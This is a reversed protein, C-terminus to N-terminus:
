FRKLGFVLGMTSAFIVIALVNTQMFGIFGLLFGSPDELPNTYQPKIVILSDGAISVGSSTTNYVGQLTGAADYIYVDRHVSADPDAFSVNIASVAPIVICSAFAFLAILKLCKNM